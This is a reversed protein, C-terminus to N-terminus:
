EDCLCKAAAVAKKSGHNCPEIKLTWWSERKRELQRERLRRRLGHSREGNM